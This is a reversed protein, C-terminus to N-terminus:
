KGTSGIGGSGRVTEDLEDVIRMLAYDYHPVVTLQAVRDMAQLSVSHDSTNHLAIMVEGRYDSDIQGTGNALVIGKKIGISSRVNLLGVFGKPIAVSIGSSVVRTGNPKIRLEENDCCINLDIAAAGESHTKPLFEGVLRADNIKIRLGNPVLQKEGAMKKVAAKKVM